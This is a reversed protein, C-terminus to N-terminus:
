RALGFSQSHGASQATLARSAPVIGDCETMPKLLAVTSDDQAPTAAVPVSQGRRAPLDRWSQLPCTRPLWPVTDATAANSCSLTCSCHDATVSHSPSRSHPSGSLPPIRPDPPPIRARIPCWTQPLETNGCTVPKADTRSLITFANSNISQGTGGAPNSGASVAGSLTATCEGSWRFRTEACWSRPRIPPLRRTSAAPCSRCTM